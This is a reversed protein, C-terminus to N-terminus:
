RHRCFNQCFRIRGAQLCLRLPSTRRKGNQSHPRMVEADKVHQQYLKHLSPLSKDWAHLLSVRAANPYSRRKWYLLHLGVDQPNPTPSLGSEVWM